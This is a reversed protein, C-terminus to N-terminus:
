SASRALGAHRADRRRDPTLVSPYAPYVIRVMERVAPASEADVEFSSEASSPSSPSPPEYRRFSPTSPSSVSALEVTPPAPPPPLMPTHALETLVHQIKWLLSPGSMTPPHPPPASLLHRPTPVLPHPRSPRNYSSSFSLSLFSFSFCFSLSLAITVILVILVVAVSQVDKHQSPSPTAQGLTTPAHEAAVAASIGGKRAFNIRSTM